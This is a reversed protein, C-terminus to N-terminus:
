PARRDAGAGRSFPGLAVRQALDLHRGLVVPTCLGLARQDVERDAVVVHGLGDVVGVAVDLLGGREDSGSGAAELTTAPSSSESNGSYTQCVPDPVWDFM